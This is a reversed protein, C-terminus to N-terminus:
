EQLDEGDEEAEAPILVHELATGRLLNGFVEAVSKGGLISLPAMSEAMKGALAKDSFDRLAAVLQPSVAEAKSVM